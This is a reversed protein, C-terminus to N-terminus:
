DNDKYIASLIKAATLLNDFPTISRTEPDIMIAVATARNPRPFGIEAAFKDIVKYTGVQLAWATDGNQVFSRALGGVHTHAGVYVDAVPGDFKASREQGHTANYISTGQWKHRMRITVKFDDVHVDVTCDDAAYIVDPSAKAVAHRFVDIGLLKASWGDHNGGIVALLKECLIEFYHAQLLGEDPISLSDGFRVSALKGIIFNNTNDGMLVAYMGPTAAVIEAELFCREYDIGEGGFHQDGFFVIVIPGSDFRIAQNAKRQAVEKVRNFASKARQLAEKWDRSEDAKVGESEFRQPPSNRRFDVPKRGRQLWRNYQKRIADGDQPVNEPGFRERLAVSVETWNLNDTLYLQEAHELIQQQSPTAM